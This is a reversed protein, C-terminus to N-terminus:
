YLASLTSGRFGGYLPRRSHEYGKGAALVQLGVGGGGGATYVGVSVGQTNQQELAPFLRTLLQPPHGGM